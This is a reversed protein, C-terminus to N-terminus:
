FELKRVDDGTWKLTAKLGLEVLRRVAESRTLDHITAWDEIAQIVAKPARRKKPQVKITKMFNPQVRFALRPSLQCKREPELGLGHGLSVAHM